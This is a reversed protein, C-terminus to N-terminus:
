CNRAFHGIQSCNFCRKEARNHDIDMTNPDCNQWNNGAPLVPPLTNTGTEGKGSKATFTKKEAIAQRWQRDLRVTLDYWKELATPLEPVAMLKDLLPSNLLCKFKHIGATEGFGSHMYCQKFLQVHEKGPKNGQKITMIEQIATAQK